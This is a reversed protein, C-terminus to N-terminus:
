CEQPSLALNQQNLKLIKDGKAQFYSAHCRLLRKQGIQRRAM